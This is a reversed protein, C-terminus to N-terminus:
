KERNPNSAGLVAEIENDLAAPAQANIAAIAQEVAQEEYLKTRADEWTLPAPLTLPANLEELLLTLPASDITEAAAPHAEVYAKQQELVKVARMFNEIIGELAVAHRTLTQYWEALMAENADM